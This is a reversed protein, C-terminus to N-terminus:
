WPRLMPTSAQSAAAGDGAQRQSNACAARQQERCRGGARERLGQCLRCVKAVMLAIAYAEGEALVETGAQQVIRNRRCDGHGVGGVCESHM